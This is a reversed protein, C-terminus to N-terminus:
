AALWQAKYFIFALYGVLIAGRSVIYLVAESGGGAEIYKYAIAGDM